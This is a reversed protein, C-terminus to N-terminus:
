QWESLPCGLQDGNVPVGRHQVSDPRPGVREPTRQEGDFPFPGRNSILRRRAVQNHAAMDQVVNRLQARKYRREGVMRAPSYDHLDRRPVRDAADIREPLAKVSKVSGLPWRPCVRHSGYGRRSDRRHDFMLDLREGAMPRGAEIVEHGQRPSPEAQAGVAIEFYGLCQVPDADLSCARLRPAHTGGFEDDQPPIPALRRGM